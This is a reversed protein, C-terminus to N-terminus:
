DNSTRWERLMDSTSRAAQETLARFSDFTHDPHLSEVIGGMATGPDVDFKEGRLEYHMCRNRIRKARGDYLFDHVLESAMFTRANKSANSIAHSNADLVQRVSSLSHFVSIMQARFVPEEHGAATHPLVHAAASVESEIMLLLLKSAIDLTQDFRPKLYKEADHDVGRIRRLPHLDLTSRLTDTRGSLGALVSLTAGQERALEFLAAGLLKGPPIEPIGFRLQLPITAGVLQGDLIYLGLDTEFRRLTPLAKGVFVSRHLKWYRRADEGFDEFTKKNDDLMKTAHRARVYPESQEDPLLTALPPYGVEPNPSRLMTSGEYAIRASHGLLLMPLVGKSRDATHASLYADAIWQADEVLMRRALQGRLADSPPTM